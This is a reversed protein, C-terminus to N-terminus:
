SVRLAEGLWARARKWERQVSRLSLQLLEAIEALEIGAFVHLEIIRVLRPDLDNLQGLARDIAILAVPDDGRAPLSEIQEVVLAPGASQPTRLRHRAYDIVIHRMACACLGFFQGRDGTSVTDARPALKLFAEHV